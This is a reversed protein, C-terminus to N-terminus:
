LCLLHLTVSLGIVTHNPKVLFTIQAFEQSVTVFSWEASLLRKLKAYAQNAKLAQINPLSHTISCAISHIISCALSQALLHALSNILLM